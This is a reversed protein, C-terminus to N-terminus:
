RITKDSVSLPINIYELTITSQEVEYQLELLKQNKFKSVIINRAYMNHVRSYKVEKYKHFSM